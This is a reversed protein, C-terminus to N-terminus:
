NSIVEKALKPQILQKVLSSVNASKDIIGEKQLVKGAATISQIQADGPIPSSFDNRTLQKKAVALDINASQALIKATQDPNNIAYKRAKEYLGIVQKVLDPHQKAFDTTVNLTGYTNFDPNRYFLKAHDVLQLKAMHPDLGAWADVAGKELATAGDAHQLNVLKIDNLSMNNANLARLLFIYPDTGITAAVKKGKLDTVKNIPSNQNTVLATWEPKSYIYVTEIPAGKAKAMLAAAGATSGFDVSNSTLYQLAKNSGESLVWKVKIGEKKFAAEAWGKNKLILSTPSYYAYDLRIVDPQKTKQGSAAKGSTKGASGCATLGITLLAALLVVLAKIIKRKM